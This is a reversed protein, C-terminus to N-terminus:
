KKIEQVRICTGVQALLFFFLNPVFIAQSVSGSDYIPKSFKTQFDFKSPKIQLDSKNFTLDITCTQLFNESSCPSPVANNNTNM